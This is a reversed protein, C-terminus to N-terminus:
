FAKTQLYRERQQSIEAFCERGFQKGPLTAAPAGGGRRGLTTLVVFGYIVIFM